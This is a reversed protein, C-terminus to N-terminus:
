IHINKISKELINKIFYNLAIVIFIDAHCDKLDQIFTPDQLNNSELILLADIFELCIM